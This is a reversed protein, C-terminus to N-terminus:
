LFEWFGLIEMGEVYSDFFHTASVSQKIFKFIEDMKTKNDDSAVRLLHVFFIMYFIKFCHHLCFRIPLKQKNRQYNQLVRGSEYM